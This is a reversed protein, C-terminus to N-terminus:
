ASRSSLLTLSMFSLHSAEILTRRRGSHIRGLIPSAQLIQKQPAEIFSTELSGGQEAPSEPPPSVRGDVRRRQGIGGAMPQRCYLSRRGRFFVLHTRDHGRWKGGA